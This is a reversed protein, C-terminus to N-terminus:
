PSPATTPGTLRLFAGLDLLDQPIAPLYDTLGPSRLVLTAWLARSVFVTM